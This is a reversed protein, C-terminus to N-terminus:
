VKSVGGDRFVKRRGALLRDPARRQRVRVIGAAASAAAATLAFYHTANM